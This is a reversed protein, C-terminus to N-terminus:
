KNGAMVTIGGGDCDILKGGNHPVDTVIQVPKGGYHAADTATETMNEAMIRWM